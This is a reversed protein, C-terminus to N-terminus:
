VTGGGKSEEGGGGFVGFVWLGGVVLAILAVVGLGIGVFLLASGGAKKKGAREPAEDDARRPGGKGKDGPKGKRAGKEPAPEDEGDGGPEEVVFRYKCKPCDIKKGILSPDRIPVMAECSPCQQKFGATIAM